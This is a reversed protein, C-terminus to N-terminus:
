FVQCYCMFISQETLTQEITKNVFVQGMNLHNSCKKVFYVFDIFHQNCEKASM